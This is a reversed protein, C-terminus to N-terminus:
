LSCQRWLFVWVNKATVQASM